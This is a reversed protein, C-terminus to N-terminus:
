NKKVKPIAPATIWASMTGFGTKNLHFPKVKKVNKLFILICYQKNKFRKFYLKKEKTKIGDSKGYKNLIEKVKPPTLDSFQIVKKVKAKTKIM